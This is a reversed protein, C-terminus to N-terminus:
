VEEAGELLAGVEAILIDANTSIDGVADRLNAAREPAGQGEIWGAYEPGQVTGVRGRWQTARHMVRSMIAEKLERSIVPKPPPPPANEIMFSATKTTSNGKTDTATVELTYRGNPIQTSDFTGEYPSATDDFTLDAGDGFLRFSVKAVGSPDAATAAYRVEGSLPSETPATIM